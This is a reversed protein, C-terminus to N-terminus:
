MKLCLQSFARVGISWLLSRSAKASDGLPRLMNQGRDGRDNVDKGHGGLAKWAFPDAVADFPNQAILDLLGQGWVPPHIAQVGFVPVGRNLCGRNQHSLAM